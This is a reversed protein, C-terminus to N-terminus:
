GTEVFANRIINHNNNILDLWADQLWKAMLMRRQMAGATREDEIEVDGGGAMWVGPNNEVERLYSAKMHNQIWVGVHHDVPSTCDTCNAPTFLPYLGLQKYLDLMEPTRQASHNDM